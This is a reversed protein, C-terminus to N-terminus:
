ISEREKKFARGGECVQRSPNSVRKASRLSARPFRATRFYLLKPPILLQSNATLTYGDTKLTGPAMLAGAYCGM